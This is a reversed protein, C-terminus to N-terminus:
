WRHPGIAWLEPLQLFCNVIPEFLAASAAFEDAEKWAAVEEETRPGTRNSADADIAAMAVSSAAARPLRMVEDLAQQGTASISEGIRQALLMKEASVPLACGQATLHDQMRRAENQALAAGHLWRWPVWQWGLCKTPELNLAKQTDAHARGSCFITVYHRPPTSADEHADRMNVSNVAGLVRVGCRQAPSPSVAASSTPNLSNNTNFEPVPLTAAGQLSSRVGFSDDELRIGTEELVERAACEEFSEHLELHGGPLAQWAPPRARGFSDRPKSTGACDCM